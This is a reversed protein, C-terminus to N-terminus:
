DAYVYICGTAKPVDLRRGDSMEITYFLNLPAYRIEKIERTALAEKLLQTTVEPCLLKSKDASKFEGASAISSLLLLGTTFLKM